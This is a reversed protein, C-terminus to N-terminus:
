AVGGSKQEEPQEREPAELEAIAQRLIRAAEMRDEHTGNVSEEIALDRIEMYPALKLRKKPDSHNENSNINQDSEHPTMSSDWIDDMSVGLIQLIGDTTAHSPSVIGKEIKSIHTQTVGVKEALERQSLGKKLRIERVLSGKIL